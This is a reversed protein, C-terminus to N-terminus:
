AGLFLASCRLRPLARATTLDPRMALAGFGQEWNALKCGGQPDMGLNVTLLSNCAHTAHRAGQELFFKGTFRKGILRGFVDPFAVIVTDIADSRIRSTLQTLTM